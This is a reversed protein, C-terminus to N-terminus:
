STTRRSKGALCQNRSSRVTEGYPGADRRDTYGTDHFLVVLRASQAKPQCYCERLHTTLAGIRVTMGDIDSRARRRREGLGILEDNLYARARDCGGNPGTSTTDDMM